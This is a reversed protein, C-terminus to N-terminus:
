GFFAFKNISTVSNPIILDKIEEGNLYLHHAFNLPNSYAHSFSIACWAAIDSIHVSTLGNCNNFAYDGISIVNNPIAVSTLGSCNLFAYSGISALGTFYVLEDFSTINTNSKFVTGLDTVAAAEVDSLEGDGNTDWNAVCIAKVNADAFTINTSPVPMEVIENFDQWYPAALYASKSGHPVYLTANARNSFVYSSISIPESWGVVVSTLSRCGYFASQGISTVSSPIGISTLGSCGSFAFDGISTVSNPITVSTLGSCQYFAYNGISTVGNPITTNKCGAILKGSATEIIANCNDRSDYVTNGNNVVISELGNCNQFAYNGISTVSNPITVSTLGSCGEFAKAKISTVSIPIILDKVEEGNLYLHHAYYLPNHDSWYISIGCWAAIDSIHVSTLGSCGSFAYKDIYTVSNPITVSNLNNCNYFSYEGISTVNYTTGQSTVTKPIVISGSYSPFPSEDIITLFEDNDDLITQRIQNYTVTARPNQGDGLIYHVGDIYRGNSVYDYYYDEDAKAEVMSMLVILLLSIKFQKMTIHFFKLNNNM